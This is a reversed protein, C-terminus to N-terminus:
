HGMMGGRAVMLHHMQHHAGETMLGIFGLGRIRAVLRTDATDRATVTLRMGGPIIVAKALMDDSGSLMMAHMGVMRQIAAAVPPTGTVNMVLGGTTPTQRVRSRLTVNDMDILHLRLAELNVKSWDTTSDAKLIKVVEAIAAFAAQGSETAMTPAGEHPMGAMHDMGGTHQTGTPPSQQAIVSSAALTLILLLAIPRHM